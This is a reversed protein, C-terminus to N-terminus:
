DGVGVTDMHGLLIATDSVSIDSGKVLAFVNYREHDDRKTRIKKLYSPNEQFYPLDSLIEYLLQSMNREDVTGVISPQQVLQKTLEYVRNYFDILTSEGEM